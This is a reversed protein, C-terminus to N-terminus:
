RASGSFIAKPASVDYTFDVRVQDREDVPVGFVYRGSVSEGPALSGTIPRVGPASLDGAPADDAGYYLTALALSVDVSEGTTNELTITVRLAPGSTEGPGRGEGQVAEIRTVAVSVGNGLEATEDLEVRVPKEPEATPTAVETPVTQGPSKTPLDIDPDDLPETPSSTPTPSTTAGPRDSPDDADDRLALWVVLAVVVVAVVGGVLLLLPRRSPAPTPNETM